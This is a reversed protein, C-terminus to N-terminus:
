LNVSRYYGLLQRCALLGKVRGETPIVYLHNMVCNDRRGSCARSKSDREHGGDAGTSIARDQGTFRPNRNSEERVRIGVALTLRREIRAVSSLESKSLNLWLLGGRRQGEEGRAAAM